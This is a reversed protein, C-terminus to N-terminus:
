SRLATPTRLDDGGQVLFPSPRVLLGTQDAMITCLRYLPPLRRDDGRLLVLAGDLLDLPQYLRTAASRRETATLTPVTRCQHLARLPPDATDGSREGPQRQLGARWDVASQKTPESRGSNKAFGKVTRPM